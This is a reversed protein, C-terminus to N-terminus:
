TVKVQQPNVFPLDVAFGRCAFISYM